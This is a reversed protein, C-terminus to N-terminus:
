LLAHLGLGLMIQLAYGHGAHHNAHVHGHEVGQSFGELVLQIFFGGLLWLGIDPQAHRFVTPIMELAAIGLLYAGSFSLLLPLYTRFRASVSATAAAGGILVSAFLLISQWLSM